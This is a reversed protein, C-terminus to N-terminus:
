ESYHDLEACGARHIDWPKDVSLIFFNRKKASTRVKGAFFRIPQCTSKALFKEMRPTLLIKKIQKYLLFNM